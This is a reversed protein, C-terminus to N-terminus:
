KEGFCCNAAKGRRKIAILTDSLNACVQIMLPCNNSLGNAIFQNKAKQIETSKQRYVWHSRLLSKRDSLEM